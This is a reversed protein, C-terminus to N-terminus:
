ARELREVLTALELPLEPGLLRRDESRVRRSERARCLPEADDVEEPDHRERVALEHRDNLTGTTGHERLVGVVDHGDELVRSCGRGSRLCAASARRFSATGSTSRNAIHM